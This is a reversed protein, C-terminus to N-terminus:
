RRSLLYLVGALLLSTILGTALSWRLFKEHKRKLASGGMGPM